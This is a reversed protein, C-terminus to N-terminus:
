TQAALEIIKKPSRIILFPVKAKSTVVGAAINGEPLPWLVPWPSYAEEDRYIVSHKM